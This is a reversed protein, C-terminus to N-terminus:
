ASYRERVAEAFRPHVGSLEVWCDQGVRRVRARPRVAPWAVWGLLASAFLALVAWGLLTDPALGHTVVLAWAALALATWFLGRSGWRITMFTMWWARTVPLSGGASTGAVRALVRYVLLVRFLLAPVVLM